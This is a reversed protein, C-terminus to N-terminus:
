VIKIALFADIVRVSPINLYIVCENKWTMVQELFKERGLDHRTKGQTKYLRKEVVSQSVPMTLVQRSYRQRAWCVIGSIYSM